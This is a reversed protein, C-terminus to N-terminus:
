HGMRNLFCKIADSAEWLVFGQSSLIIDIYVTKWALPRDWIDAYMKVNLRDRAGNVNVANYFQDLLLKHHALLRKMVYGNQPTWLTLEYFRYYKKGININSLLKIVFYM